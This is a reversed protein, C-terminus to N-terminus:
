DRRHGQSLRDPRSVTRIPTSLLADLNGGLTSNTTAFLNFKGIRINGSPM